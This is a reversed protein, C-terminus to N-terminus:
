ELDRTVDDKIEKKIQEMQDKLDSKTVYEAKQREAEEAAKKDANTLRAWSSGDIEHRLARITFASISKHIDLNLDSLVHYIGLHDPNRLYLRFSYQYYDDKAM